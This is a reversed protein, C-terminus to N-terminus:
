HCMKTKLYDIAVKNSSANDVTITLVNELGWELLCVELLKGISNGKHNAIVCFNLIRKYLKWNSDIFHATIVMYNVKQLSTWTDTTFSVRHSALETKLKAKMEDSM